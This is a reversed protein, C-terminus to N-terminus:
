PVECSSIQSDTSMIMRRVESLLAFRNAEWASKSVAALSPEAFLDYPTPDFADTEVVPCM